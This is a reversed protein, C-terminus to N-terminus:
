PEGLVEALERWAVVYGFPTAPVVSQCILFSGPPVYFRAQALDVTRANPEFGVQSSDATVRLIEQDGYVRSRVSRGGINQVLMLPAASFPTTQLRIYFSGDPAGYAPLSLRIHEIIIGGPAVSQITFTGYRAGAAAAIIEASFGRAEIPESSLTKSFDGMILVPTYSSLAIDPLHGGKVGLLRLLEGSALTTRFDPVSALSSPFM